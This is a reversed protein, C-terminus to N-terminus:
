TETNSSHHLALLTLLKMDQAIGASATLSTINTYPHLHHHYWLPLALAHCSDHPAAPTVTAPM